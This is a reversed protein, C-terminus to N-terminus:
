KGDELDDIKSKELKDYIRKLMKIARAMYVRATSYNINLIEAIEKISLNEDYRMILLMQYKIDLKELAKKLIKREYEKILIVLADDKKDCFDDITNLSDYEYIRSQNYRRYYQLAEKYAISFVWSKAKGSDKLQHLKEWAKELTNQKLDKSLENNGTISYLFKFLSDDYILINKIFFETDYKSHM